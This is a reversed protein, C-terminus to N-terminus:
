IVAQVGPVDTAFVYYDAKITEELPRLPAVGRVGVLQVEDEARQAIQFRPLDRKAPGAVVRGEGDYLAGHCPCLFKGDVQRQVTCGQHTCSLSIAEDEGPIAAFVADGAGYYEVGSSELNSIRSKSSDEGSEVGWEGSGMAANRKVWFPVDSQANGQQYSLSDIEGQQWHVSSVTAETVIKGGSRQIATAIPQVLSTGMDQRTGNFALGEPNGFFYFHFFQM